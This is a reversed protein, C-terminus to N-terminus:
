FEVVPVKGSERQYDGTNQNEWHQPTNYTELKDFFYDSQHLLYDEQAAESIEVNEGGIAWPWQSADRPQIDALDQATGPASIPMEDASVPVEASIPVGYTLLGMGLLGVALVPIKTITKLTIM